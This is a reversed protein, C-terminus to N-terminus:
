HRAREAMLFHRCGCGCAAPATPKLGAAQRAALHAKRRRPWGRRLFRANCSISQMHKEINIFQTINRNQFPFISSLIFIEVASFAQGYSVCQCASVKSSDVKAKAPVVTSSIACNQTSQPLLVAQSISQVQWSFVQWPSRSESPLFLRQERAPWGRGDRRTCQVDRGTVGLATRLDLGSEASGSHRSPERRPVAGVSACRGVCRAWCASGDSSSALRLCVSCASRAPPERRPRRRLRSGRPRGASRRPRGRPRPATVSVGLCCPAAALWAWALRAWCAGRAAFRLLPLPGAPQRRVPPRARRSHELPRSVAGVYV